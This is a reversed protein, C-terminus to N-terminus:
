VTASNRGERWNTWPQGICSKEHAQIIQLLRLARVLYVDEGRIYEALVVILSRM